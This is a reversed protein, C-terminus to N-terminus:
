ANALIHRAAASLDDVVMAPDMSSCEKAGKGTRVMLCNVGARRGAEMDRVADGVIWSGALDLDHEAAAEFLMGPEPKRCTCVARLPPEGETPHHPCHLIADLQVSSEALLTSLREHVATLEDPSMWGRALASQNTIVVLAFGAESLTCLGETVGSLLEVEDPSRILEREVNLTGDRDLFVARRKDSM